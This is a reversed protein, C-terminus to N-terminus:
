FGFDGGDFKDIMVRGNKAMEALGGSERIGSTPFLPGKCYVGPVLDPSGVVLSQQYILYSDIPVQPIIPHNGILTGILLIHCPTFDIRDLIKLERDQTDLAQSDRYLNFGLDPVLCYWTLHKFKYRIQECTMLENVGSGFGVEPGDCTRVVAALIAVGASCARPASRPVKGGVASSRSFSSASSVAKLSIVYPIGGSM